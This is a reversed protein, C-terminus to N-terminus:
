LYISSSIQLVVKEELTNKEDEPGLNESVIFKSSHVTKLSISIKSDCEGRHKRNLNAHNM